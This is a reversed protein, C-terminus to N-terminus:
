FGLMASAGTVEFGFQDENGALVGLLAAFGFVDGAEFGLFLTCGWRGSFCIRFRRVNQAYVMHCVM